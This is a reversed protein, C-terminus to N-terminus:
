QCNKIEYNYNEILDAYFIDLIVDLLLDYNFNDILYYQPHLGDMTYHIMMNIYSEVDDHNCPSIQRLAKAYERMFLEQRRLLWQKMQLKNHQAETIIIKM